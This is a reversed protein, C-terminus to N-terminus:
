VDGPPPTRALVWNVVRRAGARKLTGAIEDLTAGTTMVDDLLVITGEPLAAQCRFAGRVNRRRDALPLEMQPATDHVRECFEAALRIGRMRALHRAIEMSQNYGRERLRAASLPVPVLAAVPDGADVCAALLEAAFAALAIEGRYKLAHVLVDAPFRFSLAASTADFNPPEALCRGCIRSGTSALACSPCREAPARPLDADCGPCLARRAARGRCLFCSGGFLADSVAHWSRGFM